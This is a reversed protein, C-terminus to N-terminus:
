LGALEACWFPKVVEGFLRMLEEPRVGDPPRQLHTPIVSGIFMIQTDRPEEDTRMPALVMLDALQLAPEQEQLAFVTRYAERMLHLRFDSALMRERTARTVFLRLTASPRRPDLSLDVLHVTASAGGGTLRKLLEKERATHASMRARSVTPRVTPPSEEGNAAGPGREPSISVLTAMVLIIGCLAAGSVGLVRQLSERVLIRTAVPQSRGEIVAEWQARQQRAELMEEVRALRGRDGENTPNLEVALQYWHQADEIRGQDHYIDGLLSHASANHPAHRLIAACEEGAETWQGRM